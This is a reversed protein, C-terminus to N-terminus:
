GALLRRLREGLGTADYDGSGVDLAIQLLQRSAANRTDALDGFYDLTMQSLAKDVDSTLMGRSDLMDRLMTATQVSQAATFMMYSYLNRQKDLLDIHLQASRDMRALGLDLAERIAPLMRSGRGLMPDQHIPLLENGM